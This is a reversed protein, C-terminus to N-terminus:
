EHVITRTMIFKILNHTDTRTARSWISELSTNYDVSAGLEVYLDRKNLRAFYKTAEKGDYTLFTFYDKASIVYLM